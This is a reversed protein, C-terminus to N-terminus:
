FGDGRYLGAVAVPLVADKMAPPGAKAVAEAVVAALAFLMSLLRGQQNQGHALFRLLPCM